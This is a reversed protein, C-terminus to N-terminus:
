DRSTTPRPPPDEERAEARRANASLRLRTPSSLLSASIDAAEDDRLRRFLSDARASRTAPTGGLRLFLEQISTDVRSM